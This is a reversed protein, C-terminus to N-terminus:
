LSSLSSLIKGAADGDGYLDKNFNSNNSPPSKIVAAILEQNSGVLANCGHNVLEIWETEERLTVCYKKHFFAEKQVGGSDTVVFLCNIELWTMQLYGVPDIVIVNPPLTLGMDHLKHRTRPHLPLIITRESEALANFIRKMKLPDNTNEARHITCLIFEGENIKLGHFGEPAIALEKYYLAADFMVDGVVAITKDDIGEALLNRRAIATPALLRSSMHDTLVRNLEEPMHRNFSRLGAEIHIVPVHLKAAALAGALTSDTDGYVLVSDPSELYILSELKELMRGTNEGHGGGGIGLNYAPRPIDLQDFFVNSMNEDYHQGTHVIVENFNSTSNNFARSVVAAKIFQPRAGVVTMVKM